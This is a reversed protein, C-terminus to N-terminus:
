KDKTLMAKIVGTLSLISNDAVNLHEQLHDISEHQRELERSKLEAELDDLLERTKKVRKKLKKYPLENLEKAM